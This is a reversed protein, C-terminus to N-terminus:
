FSISFRNWSIWSIRMTVLIWENNIKMSKTLIWQIHRFTCFFCNWIIRLSTQNVHFASLNFFYSTSICWFSARKPKYIGFMKIWRSSLRGFGFMSGSSSFNTERAFKTRRIWFWFSTLDRLTAPSCVSKIFDKRENFYNELFIKLFFIITNSFKLRLFNPTLRNIFM